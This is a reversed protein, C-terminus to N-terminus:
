FWKLGRLFCFFFSKNLGLKCCCVVVISSLCREVAISVILTEM